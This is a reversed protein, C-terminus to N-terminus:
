PKYIKKTIYRDKGLKKALRGYKDAVSVEYELEKQIDKSEDMEKVRGAKILHAGISLTSRHGKNARSYRLLRESMDEITFDKKPDVEFSIVFEDGGFRSLVDTKRTARRVIEALEKIASDGGKHGEDTNIQKLADMDIHLVGVGHGDRAARQILNIAMLYYGRRNLLETLPDFFALYYLDETEEKMRLAETMEVAIIQLGENNRTIILKFPMMGMNTDLQIDLSICLRRPGLRDIEYKLKNKFGNSVSDIFNGQLDKLIKGTGVEVKTINLQEDTLILTHNFLEINKKNRFIQSLM